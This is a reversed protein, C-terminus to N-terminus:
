HGISLKHQWVAAISHARAKVEEAREGNFNEDVTENFLHLWREFHMSGINLAVHKVFPNSRYSQDGLLISSWFNYMTPLHQPWDIHAFVPALLDDLKVKEYFRTVLLEVDTRDVIERM